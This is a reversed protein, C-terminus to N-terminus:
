KDHIILIKQTKFNGKKYKIIVYITNRLQKQKEKNKGKKECLM